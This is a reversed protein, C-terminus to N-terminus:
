GMRAVVLRKKKSNECNQRKWFAICNSDCLICGKESETRKSLLKCELNRWTKEQSSLENTKLLSHYEMTMIYWLRNM